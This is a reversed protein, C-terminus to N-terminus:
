GAVVAGDALPVGGSGGRRRGVAATRRDSRGTRERCGAFAARRSRRSARPSPGARHQRHPKRHRGSAGAACPRRRVGVGCPGMQGTRVPMPCALSAHLQGPRRPRPRPLLAAGRRAGRCEARLATGGRDRVGPERLCSRTRPGPWGQRGPPDGTATAPSRISRWARLMASGLADSATVESRVDGAARAIDIAQRAVEVAQDLQRAVMLSIALHALVAARESTPGLPESVVVAQRALRLCDREDTSFRSMVRLGRSRLGLDDVTAALRVARQAAGAAASEQAIAHEHEALELLVSVQEAPSAIAEADVAARRSHAAAERHSGLASARDAAAREATFARRLDGAERAHHAIISPEVGPESELRRLIEAHLAARRGPALSDLVTLRVLEHRFQVAQGAFTLLGHEVGADVHRWDAALLDTSVRGPVVSALEVVWRGEPPLRAMRATISSRLTRGARGETASVLESVLFANGGTLRMAEATAIGTEVTLTRVGAASLPPVEIHLLGADPGLDGLASWLTDAGDEDRATVIVAGPGTGIRRGLFRLTESSVTDIWHADEIVFLASEDSLWRLLRDPLFTVEVSEAAESPWVQGAIDRFPGAPRPTAFPECFGWITRPQRDATVARVLSTKGAGAEGTVVIIRGRGAAAQALVVRLQDLLDEREILM